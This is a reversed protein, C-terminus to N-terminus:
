AGRRKRRSSFFALLGMGAAALIGTSPEPIPQYWFTSPDGAANVATWVYPNGYEDNGGFLGSINLPDHYFDTEVVYVPGWGLGDATSTDYHTASPGFDWVGGGYTDTLTMIERRVTYGGNEFGATSSDYGPEGPAIGNADYRTFTTDPEAAMGWAVTMYPNHNEPDFPSGATQRNEANPYVNPLSGNSGNLTPHPGNGNMYYSITWMALGGPAYPNPTYQAGNHLVPRLDILTPNEEDDALADAMNRYGISLNLGYLWYDPWQDNFLGYNGFDHAMTAAMNSNFWGDDVFGGIEYQAASSEFPDVPQGQDNVTRYVIELRGHFTTPVVGAMALDVCFPVLAAMILLHKRM